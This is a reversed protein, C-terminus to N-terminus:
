SHAVLVIGILIAAAGSLRVFTKPHPLLKELAIVVALVFMAALNMVGVTLLILMWGSCCVVCNIGCRFGAQLAGRASDGEAHCLPSRCHSLGAMKSPVFQIVGALIFAAGSLVPVAQSLAAWRMEAMAVFVGVPYLFMGVLSWILFYSAGVLVPRHFHRLMPVASPLMMAIMMALWMGIFMGAAGSWSQGPMRMWAMSMTWGGPMAMGGSMSRCLYVTAALSASFVLFAIVSFKLQDIRTNTTIVCGSSAAAASM